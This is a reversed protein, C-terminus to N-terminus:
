TLGVQKPVTVIELSFNMTKFETSATSIQSAVLFGQLSYGGILVKMLRKEDVARNSDYYELLNRAGQSRLGTVHDCLTDFLMGNVRVAGMRDGFSYVYIVKQLSAVFQANVHQDVGISTIIVGTQQSLKGSDGSVVLMGPAASIGLDVVRVVGPRTQFLKSM